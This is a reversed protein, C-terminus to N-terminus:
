EGKLIEMGDLLGYSAKVTLIRLVSEDIREQTITGNVLATHIGFYASQLDKPMLIMDCGAQIAAAAAEGPTYHDTISAMEHSDTIIVGTFGLKNRLLDTVITKSLDSPTEDGTIKPVCLHSVMVFPAGAAIGATFPLFDTGELEEQTKKLSSTGYHDDVIASGYGPFHKLCPIVGGDRLSGTMIGVMTACLQADTGFSRSGIVTGRGGNVDAVPAFDLNFGLDTLNKVLTTGAAYVAAPDGAKGLMEMDTVATGGLDKNSGIRSVSGGEEDTGLFLPIKSYSQTGSLLDIAQQRTELNKAFYIVGGVPKSSLASQTMAGAVTASQVATLSEPTAFFLQWIKEEPTMTELVTRAKQLAQEDAEPDEPAQEPLIDEPTEEPVTPLEGEYPDERIPEVASIGPDFVTGTELKTVSAQKKEPLTKMLLLASFCLFSISFVILLISVITSSRNKM